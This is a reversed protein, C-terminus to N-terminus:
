RPVPDVVQLDIIGVVDVVLDHAPKPLRSFAGASPDSDVTRCARVGL